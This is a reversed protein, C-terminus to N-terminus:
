EDSGFFKALRGRIGKSLTQVISVVGQELADLVAAWRTGFATIVAALPCLVRAAPVGLHQEVMYAAFGTLACALLVLRLMLFAAQTRTETNASSVAWSAGALAGMTIPAYDGSVFGTMAGLLFTLMTNSTALTHESM